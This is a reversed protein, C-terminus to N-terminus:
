SQCQPLSTLNATVEPRESINMVQVTEEMGVTHSFSGTNSETRRRCRPSVEAKRQPARRDCWNFGNDVDSLSVESSPSLGYWM